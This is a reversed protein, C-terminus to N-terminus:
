LERANVFVRHQWAERGEGTVERLEGLEVLRDVCAMMAWSDGAGSAANMLELARVAGSLLIAKAAFDRAALFYKQGKETFVFEREKTYNYSM